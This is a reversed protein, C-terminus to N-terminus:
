RQAEFAASCQQGVQEIEAAMAELSCIVSNEIHNRILASILQSLKPYYGIVDLYEAGECSGTKGIKKENLIFQYQDSYYGM